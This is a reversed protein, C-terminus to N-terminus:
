GEEERRRAQAEVVHDLHTREYQHLRARKQQEDLVVPAPPPGSRDVDPVPPLDRWTPDWRKM